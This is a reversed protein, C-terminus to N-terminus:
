GLFQLLNRVADIEMQVKGEKAYSGIHPTLVVNDMDCLPGNYPEEAFVDVAAGTLHGISLAGFLAEEDVVNGRSLNILFSNEPMMRFEKQSIIPINNKTPVHLTIIDSSTLLKELSMLEVNNKQAWKKDPIIDYGIVVNGLARFYESVMKGIRGLGVVGITKGYLLNGTQKEWIRKKLASDAQPIRRLLSLTMAITLEAVSRTPGDPTNLVGINKKNAFELDINDLGIGVRSICKLKPLKSLVDKDLSEVGAVIGICDHALDIVEDRTLKRKYPNDIIEFGAERMINIPESSIQGFSSPSTLVKM